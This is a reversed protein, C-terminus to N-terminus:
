RIIQRGGGAFLLGAQSLIRKVQPFEPFFGTGFKTDITQSVRIPGVEQSTSELIGGNLFITPDYDPQLITGGLVRLALEACAQQLPLPVGFVQDGNYDVAGVRPWETHQFSASPTVWTELGTGTGYGFGYGELWPDIFALNPDFPNGMWQFFKIGKYRYRQDLYDTANVIAQEVADLPSAPYSYLAGNRSGAYQALFDTTIYANAVNMAAVDPDPSGIDANAGAAWVVYGTRPWRSALFNGAAGSPLVTSICFNNQDNVQIVTFDLDVAKGDNYGYYVGTDGVEIPEPAADDLTLQAVTGTRDQVAFVKLTSLDYTM